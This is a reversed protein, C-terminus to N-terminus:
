GVACAACPGCEKKRKLGWWRFTSPTEPKEPAPPPAPEEKKGGGFIRGFFGKKETDTTVDAHLPAATALLSATLAAIM